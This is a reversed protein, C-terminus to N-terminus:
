FVTGGIGFELDMKYHDFRIGDSSGFHSLIHMFRYFGKMEGTMAPIAKTCLPKLVPPIIKMGGM